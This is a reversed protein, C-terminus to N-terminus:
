AMAAVFQDTNYALMDLYTPAPGGPPSLSDVYLKAGLTAGAERALAQAIRPDTMNELFVTRISEQRMQSALRALARPSPEAETSIGLAALFTVGYHAGYYGFADHTTIVRRRAAPISAFRAEIEADLQRLRAVYANSRAVYVAAGAPDAHALGDAIQQVMQVALLPNQWVHPDAVAREGERLRRPMIGSTATIRTGQFGSSQVMRGLWGELGLGNEVIMTATRLRNLDSPRPEFSHPDTDAPVLSAVTVADGCVQRILDALISFTAVVSVRGQQASALVPVLCASLLTRRALFTIM